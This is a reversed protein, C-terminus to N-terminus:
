GISEKTGRLIIEPDKGKRPSKKEAGGTIQVTLIQSFQNISIMNMVRGFEVESLGLERGEANEGEIASCWAVTRLLNFDTIPAVLDPMEKGTLATFMGLANMDFCIRVKRGDALTLYDAKM